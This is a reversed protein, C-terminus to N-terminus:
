QIAKLNIRGLAAFYHRRRSGYGHQLYIDGIDEIVGSGDRGPNRWLLWPMRAAHNENEDYLRSDYCM